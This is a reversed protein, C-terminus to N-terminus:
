AIAIALTTLNNSDQNSIKPKNYSIGAKHQKDKRIENIELSEHSTSIILYTSVFHINTFYVACTIRTCSFWKM